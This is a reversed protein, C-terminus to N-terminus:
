ANVTPKEHFGIDMRLVVVYDKLVDGGIKGEQGARGQGALFGDLPFVALFVRQQFDVNRRSRVREIGALLFQQIGTATHIFEALAVGFLANFFGGEPPKKKAQAM